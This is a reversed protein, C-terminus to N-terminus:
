VEAKAEGKTRSPLAGLGVLVKQRQAPAVCLVWLSSEPSTEWAVKDSAVRPVVSLKQSTPKM